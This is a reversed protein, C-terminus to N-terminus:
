FREWPPQFGRRQLFSEQIQQMRQSVDGDASGGQSLQLQELAELAALPQDQALTLDIVAVRAASRVNPSALSSNLIAAYRQRSAEFDGSRREIEALLLEPALDQMGAPTSQYQALVERAGVENGQELLMQAIRFNLFPEDVGAQLLSQYIPLLAPPPPDLQVLAQAVLRREVEATPLPQLATQLRQGAELSSILGLQQELTIQRVFFQREEPQRQALQRYIQLAYEQEQPLGSFVDAVERLLDTSPNLDQSLVQRYLAAAEQRLTPSETAIGIENLARALPLAADPRDRLPDLISTAQLPQNNALYAQSLEARLQDPNVNSEASQRLASELVQVAQATNGAGRLARGYAIAANDTITGGTALYREFLNLGQTTEGSYTFIQAAGLLVDPTPDNQLAIRYDELSEAFRGQYGYLLARQARAEADSPNLNLLTSLAEIGRVQWEPRYSGLLGITRLALENNPDQALVQGYAQWADEIRGLRRYAIALGLKAELSNPYRSLARQFAPIADDVWGRNLLTYGERVETPLDQALVISHGLQLPLSLPAGLLGTGLVVSLVWRNLPHKWPHIGRQTPQSHVHGM